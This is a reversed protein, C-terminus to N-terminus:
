QLEWFVVGVLCVGAIAASIVILNSAFWDKRQGDDLMVELFGLGIAILALGIYDIRLGAAWRKRTLYPPDLFRRLGPYDFAPRRPDHYPLDVGVTITRSGLWGLTATLIITPALACEQSRASAM